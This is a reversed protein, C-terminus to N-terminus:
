FTDRGNTITTNASGSKAKGESFRDAGLSVDHTNIQGRLHEVSGFLPEGMGLNM